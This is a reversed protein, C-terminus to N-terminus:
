AGVKRKGSELWNLSVFHMLTGGVTTGSVYVTAYIILTSMPMEPKAMFGILFLQSVFWVGNSAVSVISHYFVSGSNRARSVLTFAMSQVVLVLFWIALSM